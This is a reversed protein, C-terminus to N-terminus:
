TGRVLPSGCKSCKLSTCTVGTTHSVKEGCKPCVCYGAPGAGAGGGQGGRGRKGTMPGTGAPGTGDKKPM